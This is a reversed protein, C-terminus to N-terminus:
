GLEDRRKDMIQNIYRQYAAVRAAEQQERAFRLMDNATRMAENLDGHNILEELHLDRFEEVDTGIELPKDPATRQDLRGLIDQDGRKRTKMFDKFDEHSKKRGLDQLQEPNRLMTWLPWMLPWLIISGSAFLTVSETNRFENDKQIWMMAYVGIGLYIIIAVIIWIAV